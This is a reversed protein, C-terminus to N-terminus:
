IIDMDRSCNFILVFYSMKASRQVLTEDSSEVFNCICISIPNYNKIKIFTPVKTVGLPLM